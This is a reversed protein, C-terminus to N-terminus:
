KGHIEKKLQKILERFTALMWEKTSPTFTLARRIGNEMKLIKRSNQLYEKKLNKLDKKIQIKERNSTIIDNNYWEQQNPEEVFHGTSWLPQGCNHCYVEEMLNNTLPRPSWYNIYNIKICYHKKNHQCKKPHEPSISHPKSIM